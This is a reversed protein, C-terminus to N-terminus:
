AASELKSHTWLRRFAQDKLALYTDARVENEEFQRILEVKEMASLGDDVDQLRIVAQELVTSGDHAAMFKEFINTHPNTSGQMGCIAVAPKKGASKASSSQGSFSTIASGGGSEVLSPAEACSPHEEYVLPPCSPKCRIM